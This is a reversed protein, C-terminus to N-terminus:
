TVNILGTDKLINIPKPVTEDYNSMYDSPGKVVRLIQSLCKSYTLLTSNRINASLVHYIFSHINTDHRVNLLSRHCM